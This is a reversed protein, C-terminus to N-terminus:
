RGASGRQFTVYLWALSPILAAAGVALSVLTALLVAHAAAAATITLRRQLLYPYQAAAWGWLVATV